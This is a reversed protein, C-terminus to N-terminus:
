NANRVGNGAWLNGKRLLESVQVPLPLSVSLRACAGVSSDSSGSKEQEEPDNDAIVMAPAKEIDPFHGLRNFAKLQVMVALLHEDSGAVEQAWTIKEPQPTYFM